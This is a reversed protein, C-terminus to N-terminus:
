VPTATNEVKKKRWSLKTACFNILGQLFASIVIFLIFSTMAIGIPWGIGICRGDSEESFGNNTPDSKCFQIPIKTLNSLRRADSFHSISFELADAGIYESGNYAFKYEYYLIRKDHIEEKYLTVVGTGSTADLVDLALKTSFFILLSVPLIIFCVVFIANQFRDSM